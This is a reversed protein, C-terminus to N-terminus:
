EKAGTLNAVMFLSKMGALACTPEDIVPIYANRDTPNGRMSNLDVHCKEHFYTDFFETSFLENSNRIRIFIKNQEPVAVGMAVPVGIQAEANIVNVELNDNDYLTTYIPFETWGTSGYSSKIEVNMGHAVGPVFYLAFPIGILVCVIRAIHRNKIRQSAWALVLGGTFSIAGIFLTVPFRTIQTTEYASVVGLMVILMTVAGVGIAIGERINTM